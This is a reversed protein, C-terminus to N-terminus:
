LFEEDHPPSPGSISLTPLNTLKPIKNVKPNNNELDTMSSPEGNHCEVLEITEKMTGSDDTEWERNESFRRQFM